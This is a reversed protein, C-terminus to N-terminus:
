IISADAIASEHDPAFFFSVHLFFVFLAGPPKKSIAEPTTILNSSFTTIVV